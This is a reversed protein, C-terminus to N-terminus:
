PLSAMNLSAAHAEKRFSSRALELAADLQEADAPEAHAAMREVRRQFRHRHRASRAWAVSAALCAVAVAMLVISEM